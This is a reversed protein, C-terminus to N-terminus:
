RLLQRFLWFVPLRHVPRQDLPPIPSIKEGFLAGTWLSSSRSVVLNFNLFTFPTFISQEERLRSYASRM